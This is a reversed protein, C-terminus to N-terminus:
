PSSIDDWSALIKKWVHMITSPFWNDVYDLSNHPKPVKNHMVNSFQSRKTKWWALRTKLCSTLCMNIKITKLIHIKVHTHIYTSSKNYHTHDWLYLSKCSAKCNHKQTAIVVQLKMVFGCIEIFHINNSSNCSNCCIWNVMHPVMYTHLEYLGIAITYFCSNHLELAVLICGSHLWNAIVITVDHPCQKEDMWWHFVKNIEM